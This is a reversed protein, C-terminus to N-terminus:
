EFIVGFVAIAHPDRGVVLHQVDNPDQFGRFGSFIDFRFELSKDLLVKRIDLGTFNDPTDDRFQHFSDLLALVDRDLFKPIVVTIEDIFRNPDDAAIAPAVIDTVASEIMDERAFAVDIDENEIGLDVGIGAALSRLGRLGARDILEGSRALLFRLLVEGEHRHGVLM